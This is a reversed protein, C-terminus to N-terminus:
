QLAQTYCFSKSGLRSIFWRYDYGNTPNWGDGVKKTYATFAGLSAGVAGTGGNIIDLVVSCEATPAGLSWTGTLSSGNLTLVQINQKTTSPTPDYAAPSAGTLTAATSVATYGATLASAVNPRVVVSPSLIGIYDVAGTSFLRLTDGALLTLSSQGNITAGGTFSFVVSGTTGAVHLLVTWGSPMNGGTPAPLTVTTAGSNTYNIIRLHDTNAITDTAASVIRSGWWLNHDANWSSPRVLTTDSGDAIASVFAHTLSKPM